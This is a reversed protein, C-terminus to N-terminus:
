CGCVRNRGGEKARYLARDAEIMLQEFDADEEKLGAVGFSATLRIEKGKYVVVLSEIESRVKEAVKMANEQTTEPLLLLLEEGGFRGLVDSQRLIRGCTEAVTKLVLDGALHGYTDNINKFLDFDFLIVSFYSGYRRAREVERNAAENLYRRNYIGTLEDHIAMYELRLQLMKMETIDHFDLLIGLDKGSKGKLSTSRVQFVLQDTAQAAGGLPRFEIASPRGSDLMRILDPYDALVTTAPTGPEASTLSPVISLMRPNADMFRHKKDIVMIGNLSGEFIKDHALPAIDLMGVKFFGIAFFLVSLSLAIPTTDMNNPTIGGIYALSSAWPLLSGIWYITLQNRPIPIGRVLGITFLVTSAVLYISQIATVLYMAWGRDYMFLSLTGGEALRADPHLLNLGGLTQSLILMVVPPIWLLIRVFRSLADRKRMISLAFMFWLVPLLQIGLHQFRVWFFVDVMNTVNIERAYGFDYIAVCVGCLILNTASVGATSRRRLAALVVFLTLICSVYLMVTVTLRLNEMASEDQISNILIDIKYDAM